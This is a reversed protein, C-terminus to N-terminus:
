RPRCSVAGPRARGGKEGDGRGDRLDAAEGGGAAGVAGSTKLLNSGEMNSGKFVFVLNHYFSMGTIHTDFYSPVYGPRIFEEHNLCDILSKFYGMTTDRRDPDTSNGGFESWYSTQTDEVVYIAGDNLLPFLLQFSKIVHANIHSGDDIVIDLGGAERAVKELLAPDDQRGEYIMIRDEEFAKKDYIDIGYIVAHPFYAKWMRLSAGGQNPSAYGGVGIELLKIRKRRLHSFHRQYHRMYWHSNWKDTGYRIALEVLDDRGARPRAAKRSNM